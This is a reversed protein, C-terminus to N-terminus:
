RSVFGKKTVWRGNIKIKKDKWIMNYKASVAVKFKKLGLTHRINHENCWELYDEYTRTGAHEEFYNKDFEAFYDTLPDNLEAFEESAEIVKENYTLVNESRNKMAKIAEVALKLVYERASETGLKKMSEMESIVEPDNMFDHDFPIIYLRKNIQNGYEKFNPYHNSATICVTNMQVTRSDKNKAEVDIYGGTIITKLSGSDEISKDPQDDVINALKGYISNAAFTNDALKQPSIAAMNSGNNFTKHIMTLVTSKGNHASRGYLYFMKPVLLKPYLVAGFMECINNITPEHNDSVKKLTNDVFEDYADPNYKTPIKSTVFVDPTFEKFEMGELELLGNEVAVYNTTEERVVPSTDIIYEQVERVKQNKLFELQRIISRLYRCTKDIEYIGTSENYIYIDGHKDPFRVIKYEQLVYKAMRDHLFTRTKNENELWWSGKQIIKDGDDVHLQFYIHEDYYAKVKEDRQCYEIMAKYSPKDKMEETGNDLHGFKHLRYLDFSNVNMGGIPDTSHNSHAHQDDDYIVLGGKTSGEIYTYRDNRYHEYKDSLFTDLVDTISYVNCWAGIWNQKTRPDRKKFDGKTFNSIENYQKVQDIPVDNADFFPEDRYYFEYNSRNECTPYHMHQSLKYSSEDINIQLLNVIFRAIPEYQEPKIPYRLPVILRYRPDAPTSRHTSYMVAAFSSYNEVNGWVNENPQDDIDITILSRTLVNSNTREGEVWGGVFGGASGKKKTIKPYQLSRVFDSYNIKINEPEKTDYLSKFNTIDILQDYKLEFNEALAQM